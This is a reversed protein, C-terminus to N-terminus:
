QDFKIPSLMVHGLKYDAAWQDAPSGFIVTYIRRSPKLIHVVTRTHYLGRQKENPLTRVGELIMTPVGSKETVRSEILKSFTGHLKAMYDGVGLITASMESDTKRQILNVTLGTEFGRATPKDKTIQLAKTGKENVVRSHWGAPVQVTVGVEPFHKWTFGRPASQAFATLASLFLFALTTFPTM